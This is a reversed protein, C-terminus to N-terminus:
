REREHDVESIDGQLESPYIDLILEVVVSEAAEATSAKEMDVDDIGRRGEDV